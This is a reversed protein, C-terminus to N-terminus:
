QGSVTVTLGSPTSATGITLQLPVTGSVGAPIQIDVQLVGAVFDPAAGAYLIQAPQGGVMATVSLVPKPYVSTNVGGDVGAPITQGEGTGYLVLIGGSPAPNSPTNLSYDLNTIAFSGPSSAVVPLTVTNTPKGQFTVQLQTSTQGAVEYPVVANIQGASVYTLPAPTGDFTVVTGGLQTAVRGSADLQLSLATAPGLSVGPGAFITVIEGPAVGGAQFTAGNAVGEKVIQVPTLRRVRLNTEDAFYVNGSADLAISQPGSVEALTALGGDGSFGAAGDGAITSIIGTVADVKRIRANSTIYLNGTADVAVGCLNGGITAATAPGGDGLAGNGGGAVTTITGAPTIKRVRSNGWDAIYLDDATDLALQFPQFLKALVAPGGDGSFGAVGAGATITGAYTTIIGAPDVRRILSNGRDTIYINGAADGVADTAGIMAASTAPGGDGGYGVVGNGAVTTVIGNTAIRRIDGTGFYLNGVPDFGLDTPGGIEANAALGNDGSFGPVGNGIITTITGSPSVKRIRYDVHDAILINDSSDVAVGFPDLLATSTAPVNDGAGQVPLVGAITTIASQTVKRVRRYNIDAEVLNGSNDLAIGAPSLGASLPPVGDLLSAGGGAVSSIIGTALKVERILGNSSDSIYLNGKGDLAVDAPFSLSTLTAQVGDGEYGPQGNGAVTSIIGQVTIERIRFNEQDAVYVNGSADVRLGRPGFLLAATAPGGDGSFGATTLNGAFPTVNGAADVKVIVYGGSVYLNGAADVAICAVGSGVAAVTTIVGAPTVKRVRYNSSDAIYLNGAADVALGQPDFLQASTAPGGDGSFGATGNGAYATIMGGPSIQFVQHFYTDSVYTNGASDVAVFSPVVLKAGVAPGGAGFQLRGNGAITTINYFQASALASWFLLLPLLRRTSM